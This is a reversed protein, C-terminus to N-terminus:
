RPKRLSKRRESWLAHGLALWILGVAVFSGGASLVAGFVSVVAVGILAMGCWRPLM